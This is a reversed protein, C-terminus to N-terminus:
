SRRTRLHINLWQVMCTPGLRGKESGLQAESNAPFCLKVCAKLWFPSSVHDLKIKRQPRPFWSGSLYLAQQQEKGVVPMGKLTFTLPLASWRELLRPGLLFPLLTPEVGDAGKALPCFPVIM